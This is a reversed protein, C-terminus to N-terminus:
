SPSHRTSTSPRSHGGGVGAIAGHTARRLARQLEEGDTAPVAPQRASPSRGSAHWSATCATSAAPNWPGGQDWPGIFMLFCRVADAGYRAVLEDPNVVNGRSKSMRQRDAGLIQGQNFLRWSRSTSTSCAWTACRRPSSAPTCCTCCPTSPAAPTCTWRCGAGSRTRIVLGRRGTRALLLAPFVVVFRRVHGHHGDRAAGARRVGPLDASLFEAHSQLPSVGTPRSTSTERCCCRCSSRPCRSRATTPRLLRDPDARGLLAPPQGALRAPSLSRPQGQGSTPWSSRHDRRDGRDGAHRQVRGLQGAGRRGHPRRVGRRRDGLRAPPPSWWTASRCTTSGRSRSTASTTRRCPWSRAPATARCCTTPSGSRSASATSAPQGRVRRHLVGTKERETALREIETERRAEAVYAEVAARRERRRDARRGAPHEPALVMFTAGFM